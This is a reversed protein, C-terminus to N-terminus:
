KFCRHYSYYLRAVLNLHFNLQHMEVAISKKRKAQTFLLKVIKSKIL